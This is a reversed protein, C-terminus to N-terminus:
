KDNCPQGSAERLKVHNIVHAFMHSWVAKESTLLADTAHLHYISNCCIACSGSSFQYPLCDQFKWDPWCRPEVKLLTDTQEQLLQHEALLPLCSERYFGAYLQFATMSEVHIDAQCHAPWSAGASSPTDMGLM